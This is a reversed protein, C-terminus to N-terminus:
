STTGTLASGKKWQAFSENWDGYGNTLTMQRDSGTVEVVDGIKTLNYLWAANSTSMGVCGHSVNAVGQYGVSWPAAHLFEGSYTVRMAYEVDSLDYYNPSSKSIGVTSADMHQHRAKEIIVKIGSRTTFGPKGSTVPITRLLSGNRYVKLQHTAINVRSITASGIHFTSTRSLQGYIGKGAPISNIDAKVTVKTGPKWYHAPRWHVENGSIWHWAGAQAPSTQVSLHREISARDTVPVDFRVIVPMGIGVTQGALPAFSPYTQQDLTLAETRFRSDQSTKLGHRDVAVARVRYSTGPELRDTATWTAQDTSLRGHVTRGHATSVEVSGFTGKDARLVLTKSVPVTASSAPINTAVSAVSTAPVANTSPAAVSDDSRPAATGSSTVSCGAAAASVALAAVAAASTRRYRRLAHPLRKSM